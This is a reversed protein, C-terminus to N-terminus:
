PTTRKRSGRVCDCSLSWSSHVSATVLATRALPSANNLLVVQRPFRQMRTDTHLQCVLACSTARATAATARTNRSRFKYPVDLRPAILTQDRRLLPRKLLAPM